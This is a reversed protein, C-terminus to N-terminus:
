KARTRGDGSLRLLGMGASGMGGGGSVGDTESQPEEQVLRRDLREEREAVPGEEPPLSLLYVAAARLDEESLFGSGSMVYEAMPGRIPLGQPTISRKLARVVDDVTWDGIGTERHPTINPAPYPGPIVESGALFKDSRFLAGFLLKPTHCAGCHGLHNVLYAGRNWAESREPDAVRDGQDFNLLKWGLLLFRIDLPFPIEHEPVANRVAPVSELYAWLDAVDQETMGTYWRYPFVPYYHSGDPSKGEIMARDFDEADWGGIGTEEDPTINPVYFTGFETPMARGGALFAGLKPHDTHCSDCAGAHFVYRGRAIAAEDQAEGARPGVVALLIAVLAVKRIGEIMQAVESDLPDDRDIRTSRAAVESTRVLMSPRSSDM